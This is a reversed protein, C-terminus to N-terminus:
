RHSRLATTPSGSSPTSRARELPLSLNSGRCGAIALRADAISLDQRRREVVPKPSLFKASQRHFIDLAAFAHFVKANEAPSVFDAVDRNTNLRLSQDFFIEPHGPVAEVNRTGEEPGDLIVPSRLLEVAIALTSHFPLIASM